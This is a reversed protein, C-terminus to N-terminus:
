ENGASREGADQIRAAGFMTALVANAIEDWAAPHLKAQVKKNLELADELSMNSQKSISEAICIQIIQQQDAEGEAGRYERYRELPVPQIEVTNELSDIYKFKAPLQPGALLDEFTLGSM